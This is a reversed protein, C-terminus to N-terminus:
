ICYTNTHSSQHSVYVCVSWGCYVSVGGLLSSIWESGLCVCVTSSLLKETLRCVCVSVLGVSELISGSKLVTLM